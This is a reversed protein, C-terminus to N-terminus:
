RAPSTAARRASKGEHLERDLSRMLTFRDTGDEPYVALLRDDPIAQGAVAVGAGALWLWGSVPGILRREEEV